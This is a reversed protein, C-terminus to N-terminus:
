NDCAINLIMYHYLHLMIVYDVSRTDKYVRNQVKFLLYM